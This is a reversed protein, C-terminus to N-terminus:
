RLGSIEADREERLAGLDGVCNDMLGYKRRLEDQLLRLREIQDLRERRRLERQLAEAVLSSRQRAPVFQKGRRWLDSPLTLTVRTIDSAQTSM